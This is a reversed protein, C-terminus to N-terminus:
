YYNNGYHYVNFIIKRQYIILSRDITIIYNTVLLEYLIKTKIVYIYASISLYKNIYINSYSQINKDLKNNINLFSFLQVFSLSLINKLM